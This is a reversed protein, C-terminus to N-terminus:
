NVAILPIRINFTIKLDKFMLTVKDMMKKIKILNISLKHYKQLQNDQNSIRKKNNWKNKKAKLNHINNQLLHDKM